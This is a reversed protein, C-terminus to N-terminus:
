QLKAYKIQEEGSPFHIIVFIQDFNFFSIHSNLMSEQSIYM